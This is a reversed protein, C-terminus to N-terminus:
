VTDPDIGVYTKILSEPTAQPSSQASQDLNFRGLWQLMKLDGMEHTAITFQRQRLTIRFWAARRRLLPGFQAELQQTTLGLYDSIERPTAGVSALGNIQAETIAPVAPTAPQSTENEM